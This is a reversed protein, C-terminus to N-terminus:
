VKDVIQVYKSFRSTMKSYSIGAELTITTGVIADSPIMYTYCWYCKNSTLTDAVAPNDFLGPLAEWEEKGIANYPM